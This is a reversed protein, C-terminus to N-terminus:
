LRDPPRSIRGSRTASSQSKQKQEPPRREYKRKPRETNTTAGEPDRLLADRYSPKAVESTEGSVDCTEPNKTKVVLPQTDSDNQKRVKKKEDFEENNNYVHAPKLRDISIKDPKGNKMVSFYKASKELVRFPGTYPRVLPPKVADTRIYVYDASEISSPVQVKATAHHAM